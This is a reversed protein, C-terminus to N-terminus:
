LSVYCSNTGQHCTEGTATNGQQVLSIQKKSQDVVVSNSASIFSATFGAGSIVCDNQVSSSTCFVYNFTSQYRLIIDM